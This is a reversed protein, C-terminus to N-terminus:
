LAPKPKDTEEYDPEIDEADEGTEAAVTDGGFPDKSFQEKEEELEPLSDDKDFQMEPLRHSDEAM